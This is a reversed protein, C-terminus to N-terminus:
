MITWSVTSAQTSQWRLAHRRRREVALGDGDGRRAAIHGAQAGVTGHAVYALWGKTGVERRANCQLRDSAEKINTVRARVCLRGLEQIQVHQVLGLDVDAHELLRLLEVGLAVEDTLREEESGSM